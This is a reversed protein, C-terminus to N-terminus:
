KKVPNMMACIGFALAIGAILNISIEVISKLGLIIFKYAMSPTEPTHQTLTALIDSILFIGLMIPFLCILWTALMAVSSKLGRLSFFYDKLSFGLMVPIHLWSLRVSWLLGYMLIMALIFMLINPESEQKLPTQSPEQAFLLGWCLSATLNMLVYMLTGALMDDLIKKNTGSQPNNKGIFLFINEKYIVLRLFFAILWGEFFYAPLLLLGQRLYNSELDFIIIAILSIWKIIAPIISMRVILIRYEWFNLFGAQSAKIIDFSKM